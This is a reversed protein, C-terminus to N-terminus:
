DEIAKLASLAKLGHVGFIGPHPPYIAPDVDEPRFQCPSCACHASSACVTGAKWPVEGCPAVLAQKKKRVLEPHLKRIEDAITAKLMFPPIVCGADFLKKWYTYNVIGNRGMEWHRITTDSVGLVRAAQANNLGKRKRWARICRGIANRDQEAMPIRTEDQPDLPRPSSGHRM